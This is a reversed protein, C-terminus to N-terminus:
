LSAEELTIKDGLVGAAAEASEVDGDLGVVEGALGGGELAVGDDGGGGAGCDGRVGGGGEAGGDM